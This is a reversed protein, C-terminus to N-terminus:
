GSWPDPRAPSRGCRRGGHRRASPGHTRPPVAQETLPIFTYPQPRAAGPSRAFVLIHHVVAPVGARVEIARVWKDETFNTPVVFNQYDVEDEAPVDFAEAMEFV